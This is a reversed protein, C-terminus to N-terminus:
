EESVPTYEEKWWCQFKHVPVRLHEPPPTMYDGYLKTLCRDYDVPIEAELDEFTHKVTEEWVEKELVSGEGASDNNVAALKCDEYRYKQALQNIRRARVKHDKRHGLLYVPYVLLRKLLKVPNRTFVFPLTELTLWRMEKTLTKIYQKREQPDSTIGDIPFIDIWVGNHVGKGQYIENGATRDDVLKAIPVWYPSTEDSYVYFKLYNGVPEKQILKMFREYDPRPMAVDVDDDWPIFGNHRVAGLLTGAYLTYKLDHKECYRIFARLIELELQKIEEIDIYKMSRKGKKGGHLIFM